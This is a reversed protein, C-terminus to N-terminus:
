RRSIHFPTLSLFLVHQIWKRRNVLQNMAEEQNMCPCIRSNESLFLTPARVLKGALVSGGEDKGKKESKTVDNGNGTTAPQPGRVVTIAVVTRVSIVM